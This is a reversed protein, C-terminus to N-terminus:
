ITDRTPLYLQIMKTMWEALHFEMKMEAKM